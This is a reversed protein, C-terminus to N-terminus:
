KWCRTMRFSVSPKEQLHVQQKHLIQPVNRINMLAPHRLLIEMLNTSKKDYPRMLPHM